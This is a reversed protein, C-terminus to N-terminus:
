RPSTRQLHQRDVKGGQRPSPEPSGTFAEGLKLVEAVPTEGLSEIAYIERQVVSSIPL